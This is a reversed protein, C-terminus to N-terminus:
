RSRRNMGLVILTIGVGTTAAGGAYLAAAKGAPPKLGGVSLAATLAIVGGGVVTMVIGGAMEARGGATIKGSNKQQSQADPAPPVAPQAGATQMMAKFPIPDEAIAGMSSLLMGAVTLPVMLFRISSKFRAVAQRQM